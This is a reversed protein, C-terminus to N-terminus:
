ATRESRPPRLQREGVVSPPLRDSQATFALHMVHPPEPVHQRNTPTSNHAHGCHCLHITHGDPVTSRERHTGSDLTAAIMLEALAVSVCLASLVALFRRLAPASRRLTLLMSYPYKCVVSRIDNRV